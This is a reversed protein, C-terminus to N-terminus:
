ANYLARLCSGEITSSPQVLSPLMIINCAEGAPEYVRSAPIRVHRLGEIDDFARCVEEASDGLEMMTEILCLDEDTPECMGVFPMVSAAMALEIKSITKM